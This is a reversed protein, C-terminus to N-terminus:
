QVADPHKLHDDVSVPRIAEMVLAYSVRDFSRFVMVRGTFEDPLQVRDTAAAFPNRQAVTDPTSTGPRWTSFVMGNRIGDRSGVSLAVVSNPGAALSADAVALVRSQAPISAPPQPLFHADWAPAPGTLVRDGARVDAPGDVLLVLSVEGQVQTVRGLAQRTLEIGLTEGGAGFAQGWTSSWDRYTIDGRHDLSDPIINNRRAAAPLRFVFAPRVIRVTGGIAVGELGRVYAIQGEAGRLRDGELAVVYPLGDIDEVVSSDRLLGEVEALPVTPIADEARPAPGDRTAQVVPTARGELYALSIVDGPFLRHPNEIQPNAQWIEPWLWPRDLFRAAISWLTDGRQVTYTAPHGERLGTAAAYTALTLVAAAAVAHLRKLM